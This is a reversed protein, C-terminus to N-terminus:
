KLLDQMAAEAVQRAGDCPKPFREPTSSIVSYTVMLYQGDATDVM